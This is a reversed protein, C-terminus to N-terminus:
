PTKSKVFTGTRLVTLRILARLVPRIFPPPTWGSVKPSEAIVANSFEYTIALHETLQALSWKGPARPEAWIASPARRVTALYDAVAAQNLQVADDVSRYAADSRM